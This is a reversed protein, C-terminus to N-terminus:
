QGESAVLSPNSLAGASEVASQILLCPNTSDNEFQGTDQNIVANNIWKYNEKNPDTWDLTTGDTSCNNTWYTEPDQNAAAAAPDNAPYGYQTVGFPDNVVPTAAGVHSISFISGFSGFLKGFPDNFFSAVSTEAGSFSDPMAMALKTAPSYKSNTDFLRAVLPQSQYSQLAQQDQSDLITSLQQNSLKEGGLGNQAFDNGSVDAGGAMLDFTRGGGMSDSFPSPILWKTFSDIVPQLIGAIAKEIAGVGPIHSIASAVLSGIATIIVSATNHWTDALTTLAGLHGMAGQISALAGNVGGLVEEPCVLQGAPVPGNSCTYPSSVSAAYAKGDVLNGLAVSSSPANGNILYNYLPTQEASAKGGTDGAVGPGLADSFSGVITSDVHGSKTEDAFTRYTTYLSVMATANTLYSLKKVEAPTHQLKYVTNLATNAWGVVPVVDSSLTETVEDATEGNGIIGSIVARAIYKQYGDKLIGNAHTLVTAYKGDDKLALAVLNQQLRAEVDSQPEGGPGSNGSRENPNCSGSIVCGVVLGLTQSRPLLVREVIILKAARTKNDKWDDFNDQANCAIVCSKLGYKKQMFHLVKKRYLINKWKTEGDLSDNIAARLASRSVVKFDSDPAKSKLYDDLTLPQNVFSAPDSDSGLDIGNGPTASTKLYFHHATYKFELGYKTAMKEEIRANYWGRYLQSVLGSGTAKTPTCTRTTAGPCNRLGPMVYKRLYNSFLANTENGVANESTGYFRSQLNDVIHLLKFPLLALFIVVLAIAILVFSSGGLLFIRNQKGLQRRVFGPQQKTPKYGRGVQNDHRSEISQAEDSAASDENDAPEDSDTPEDGNAEDDAAKQARDEMMREDGASFNKEILKDFEDQGPDTGPNLDNEPSNTKTTM